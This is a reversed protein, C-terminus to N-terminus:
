SKDESEESVAKSVGVEAARLVRDNIMYGKKTISVIIGEKTGPIESEFLAQHVNPDFEDGEAAFEKIENSQFVRMLEKRTMEVGIYLEKLYKDGGELKEAPIASLARSLNDAVELLSKAFKAIGYQHANAVDRKAIMRTNEMDALYRIRLDNLKAIEEEKQALQAELAAVTPNEAVAEDGGQSGSTKSASPDEVDELNGLDEKAESEEESKGAFRVPSSGFSRRTLHASEFSNIRTRSGLDLNRCGGAQHWSTFGRDLSRWRLGRMLIRVTSM